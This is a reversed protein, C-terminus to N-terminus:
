APPLEPLAPLSQSWEELNTYGSPFGTYLRKPGGTFRFTTEPINDESIREATVPVQWINALKNLFEENEDGLAVRCSHFEVSGYVSFYPGLLQLIPTLVPLNQRSINSQCDDPIKIVRRDPLTIKSKGSVRLSGPKGHGHFRLLVLEHNRAREVIDTIIMRVGNCVVFATTVSAKLKALPAMTTGQFSPDSIDVANHILFRTGETLKPWTRKGVVGDGNLKSKKQFKEVMRKTHTGFFGDVTLEELGLKKRQRNLLLQVLAVTPLQDGIKLDPYDAM